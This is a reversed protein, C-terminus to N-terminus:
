REGRSSRGTLISVLPDLSVEIDGRADAVQPCIVVLCYPAGGVDFRRLVAKETYNIDLAMLNAQQQGLLRGAKEAAFSLVTTFAAVLEAGVPSRHEAVPLGGDDAIVAGTFGGRRCLAALAQELRESRYRPEPAPPQPEAARGPETAARAATAPVASRTPAGVAAPQTPAIAPPAAVAAPQAPAPPRPSPRPPEPTKPAAPPAVATKEPRGRLIDRLLQGSEEIESFAQRAQM